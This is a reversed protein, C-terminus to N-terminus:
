ELIESPSHLWREIQMATAVGIVLSCIMLPFGYSASYAQVATAPLWYWLPGSVPQFATSPLLGLGLVAAAIGAAWLVAGAVGVVIRPDQGKAAGLLGAFTLGGIAATLPLTYGAVFAM